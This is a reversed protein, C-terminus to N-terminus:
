WSSPAITKNGFPRILFVKTGTAITIPEGSVQDIAQLTVAYDGGKTPKGSILGTASNIKLGSPLGTAAYRPPSNNDTVNYTFESGVM